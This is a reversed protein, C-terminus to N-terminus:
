ATLVVVKVFPLIKRYRWMSLCFLLVLHLTRNYFTFTLCVCKTVCVLQYHACSNYLLFRGPHKWDQSIGITVYSVNTFAM